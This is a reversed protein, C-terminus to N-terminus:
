TPDIRKTVIFYPRTASPSGSISCHHEYGDSYKVNSSEGQFISFAPTQVNKSWDDGLALVNRLVIYISCCGVSVRPM